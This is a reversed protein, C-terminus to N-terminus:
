ERILAVEGAASICLSAETEHQRFTGYFVFVFLVLSLHVIGILYFLKMQMLHYCRRRQSFFFMLMKRM